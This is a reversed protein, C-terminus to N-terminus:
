RIWVKRLNQQLRRVEEPPIARLIEPVRPMDEHAIRLAFEKMDLINELPYHIGDAIVVPICSCSPVLALFM